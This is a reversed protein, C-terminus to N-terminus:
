SDLMTKEEQFFFNRTYQHLEKVLFRIMDVHNEVQLAIEVSNLLCILSKEEDDIITNDVSVQKEWVIPM